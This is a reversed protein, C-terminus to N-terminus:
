RLLLCGLLLLTPLALLSYEYLSDWSPLWLLEMFRLDEGDSAKRLPKTKIQLHGGLVGVTDVSLTSVQEFIVDSAATPLPFTAPHRSGGDQAEAGLSRIRRHGVGSGREHDYEREDACRSAVDYDKERTTRDLM